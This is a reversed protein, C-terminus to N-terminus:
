VYQAVKAKALACASSLVLLRAHRQPIAAPAVLDVQSFHRSRFFSAAMGSFPQEAEVLIKSEPLPPDEESSLDLEAKEPDSNSDLDECDSLQDNAIWNGALPEPAQDQMKLCLAKWLNQSFKTKHGANNCIYIKYRPFHSM